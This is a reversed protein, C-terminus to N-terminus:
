SVSFYINLTSWLITILFATDANPMLITALCHVQQAVLYLLVSAAGVVAMADPSLRLGTMGYTIYTYVQATRPQDPHHHPDTIIPQPRSRDAKAWVVDPAM